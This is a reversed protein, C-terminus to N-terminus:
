LKYFVEIMFIKMLYYINNYFVGNNDIIIQIQTSIKIENKSLIDKM